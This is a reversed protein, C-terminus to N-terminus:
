RRHGPELRLCPRRAKPEGEGQERHPRAPVPRDGPGPLRPRLRLHCARAGGAEHVAGAARAPAGAPPSRRRDRGLHSGAESGGAVGPPHALGSKPRDRGEQPDLGPPHAALEARIPPRLLLDPLPGLDRAPHGLHEAKKRCHLCRLRVGSALGGGSRDGPAPLGDRLRRIRRVVLRRDPVAGPSPHDPDRGRLAAGPLPHRSETWPAGPAPDGALRVSTSGRRPSPRPPLVGPRVGGGTGRSLPAGPQRDAPDPRRLHIGGKLGHHRNPGSLRGPDGRRGARGELIRGGGAARVPRFLM